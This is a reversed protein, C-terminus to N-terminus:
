PENKLADDIIGRSVALADVIYRGSRVEAALRELRAAREPTETGLIKLLRDSDMGAGPQRLQPDRSIVVRSKGGPTSPWIAGGSGRPPVALTAAGLRLFERRSTRHRSVFPTYASDNPSSVHAGWPIKLVDRALIPSQSHLM